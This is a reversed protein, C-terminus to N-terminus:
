PEDRVESIRPDDALIKLVATILPEMVPRTDIKKFWKTITHTNPEFDLRFENTTEYENVCYIYIRLDKNTIPVYMGFDESGIEEVPFGAKKLNEHLYEALAQGFLGPNIVDEEEEREPFSDSKFFIVPYSDSM